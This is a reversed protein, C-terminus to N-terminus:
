AFQCISRAIMDCEVIDNHNFGTCYVVDPDQRSFRFQKVKAAWDARDGAIYIFCPGDVEVEAAVDSLFAVNSLVCDRRTLDCEILDFVYRYAPNNRLRREVDILTSSGLAKRNPPDILHLRVRTGARALARAVEIAVFAGFSYGVIADAGNCTGKGTIAAGLAAVSVYPWYDNYNVSQGIVHPGLKKLIRFYCIPYAVFDPLFLVKM